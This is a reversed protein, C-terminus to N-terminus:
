SRGVPPEPRAMEFLAPGAAHVYWDLGMRGIPELGTADPLGTADLLDERVHVAVVEGIVYHASMPGDGHPVIMHLVCEFAVPSETVRAPKVKISPTSAFGAQEFEDIEAAWEASAINMREAMERTVLNVVYERTARINALTDKPKGSRDYLVSFVLSPPSGGGANFYSFPSLNPIGDESLSSVFAIPRPAVTRNILQYVEGRKMSAPLFLRSM